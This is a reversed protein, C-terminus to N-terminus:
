VNNRLGCLQPHRLFRRSCRKSGSCRCWSRSQVVYPKPPGVKTTRPKPKVQDCAACRHAKAADIYEKPVHAARLMQVLANRPLHKFNRHLRRIAIRARRPLALWKTKREHERVPNGPLPMAELLEQERDVENEDQLVPGEDETGNIGDFTTTESEAAAEATGVFAANVCKDM